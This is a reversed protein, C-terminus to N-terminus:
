VKEGIKHTEKLVDLQTRLRRIDFEFVDYEMKGIEGSDELMKNLNAIIAWSRKTLAPASFDVIVDNKPEFHHSHIKKGLDYLTNFQEEEIYKNVGYGKHGVWDGYIDSCWPELEKLMGTGCNKVRFGIDYKNSIIPYQWEDNSIWSGWKRIWNRRANMEFGAFEDNEKGIEETWKHGRCTLHYVYADSSQVLEYDNLIWRQFIDSDEYPFPAFLHDHGGASLYDAKHLIWPAFMGRTVQNYHHKESDIAYKEFAEVDLSDFDMGFDKIIKEKGPPHLPPEIRTGCVVTGPKVHKLVNEFYNPGIIMDAHLIGVIDYKAKEIGYDYLVTHGVRHDARYYVVDAPSSHYVSELWAETGDVSADDYIILEIDDRGHKLFSAYLNKIHRLNNYTPVVISLM